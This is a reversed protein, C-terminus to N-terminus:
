STLFTDCPFSYLEQHALQGPQFTHYPIASCVRATIEECSVQVSQPFSTDRSYLCFFPIQPFFLRTPPTLATRSDAGTNPDLSAYTRWLAFLTTNHVDADAAMWTVGRM